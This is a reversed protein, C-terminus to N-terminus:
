CTEEKKLDPYLFKEIDLIEKGEVDPIQWLEMDKTFQVDLFDELEKKLEKSKDFVKWQFSKNPDIFSKIEKKYCNKIIHSFKSYEGKKFKEFDEKMVQPIKYVIVVYGDTYDYDEIFNHNEAIQESVFMGFYEFDEPKFLVFLLDGSLDERAKDKLYSNIFGYNERLSGYSEGVVPKLIFLTSCNYKFLEAIM